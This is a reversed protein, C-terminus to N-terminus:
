QAWPNVIEGTGAPPRAPQPPATAEPMTKPPRPTRDRGATSPPPLRTAPPPPAVAKPSDDPPPPTRSTTPPDGTAVVSAAPASATQVVGTPPPEATSSSRARIWLLAAIAGALLVFAGVLAGLALRYRSDERVRRARAASVECADPLELEDALRFAPAGRHGGSSASSPRVDIDDGAGLQVMEEIDTVLAEITPYRNEPKKELCRLTIDELAGLERTNGLRTSFKEPAMFMHKTLVGMYTDAEFPVHGTFLEYMIVGLAYIDARHDVPQGSAQEPSMYHPSGFVTGTRTTRASGAVKAVGFDLLKIHDGGQHDPLVFINDPKLDRHVVGARHAAGIGAAIQLLMRVARSAPMPGSQKILRSLPSGELFEMVFYPIGTPATGYDTIQVVNPHNITAAARAEQIFRSCLDSERALDRRLVKMAFQRQLARHRVRYVTGMGGEGIADVVEYRGDVVTGILPDAAASWDPSAAVLPEGDFPCFAADNTFSQHCLKCVKVGNPVPESGM